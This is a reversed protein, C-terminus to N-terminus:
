KSFTISTYNKATVRNPYLKCYDCRDILYLCLVFQFIYHSNTCKKRRQMGALIWSPNIKHKDFIHEGKPKM